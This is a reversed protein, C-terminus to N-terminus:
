LATYLIDILDEDENLSSSAFKVTKINPEIEHQLEENTTDRVLVKISKEIEVTNSNLIEPNQRIYKKNSFSYSKKLALKNITKSEKIDFTEFILLFLICAAALSSIIVFRSRLSITKTTNTASSKQSFGSMLKEKLLKGPVLNEEKNLELSRLVSQVEYYEKENHIYESVTNLEIDTLESYEKNILIQETNFDILDKM